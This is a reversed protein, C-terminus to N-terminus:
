LTPDSLVFMGVERMGERGSDTWVDGEGGMNEVIWDGIRKGHAAEGDTAFIFKHLERDKFVHGYFRTTMERIRDGGGIDRLLRATEGMSFNVMLQVHELSVNNEHSNHEIVSTKPMMTTQELKVEKVTNDSICDLVAQIIWPTTQGQVFHLTILLIISLPALVMENLKRITVSKDM